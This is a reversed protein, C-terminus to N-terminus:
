ILEPNEYINGIIESRYASIPYYYDAKGPKGTIHDHYKPRKLCVGKSAIIVIQGTYTRDLEVEPENLHGYEIRLRIIDGEYIEKGNKDHFGTYQIIEYIHPNDFVHDLSLYNISNVAKRNDIQKMKQQNKDWARFKIPRKM